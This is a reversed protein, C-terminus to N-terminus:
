ITEDQPPEKITKSVTPLTLLAVVAAIAQEPSLEQLQLRIGDDPDLEAEFPVGSISGTVTDADKLEAGTLAAIQNLADMLPQVKQNEQEIWAQAQAVWLDYRGMLRKGIAEVVAFAGRSLAVTAEPALGRMRMGRGDITLPPLGAILVRPNPRTWSSLTLGIRRSGDVVNWGERSEKLSWGLASATDQAISELRAETTM